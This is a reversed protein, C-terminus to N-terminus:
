RDNFSPTHSRDMGSVLYIFWDRVREASVRIDHFEHVLKISITVPEIEAIRHAWRVFDNTVTDRWKRESFILTPIEGQLELRILYETGDEVFIFCCLIPDPPLFSHVDVITRGVLANIEACTELMMPLLGSREVRERGREVAYHDDEPILQREKLFQALSPSQDKVERQAREQHERDIADLGGSADPITLVFRSFIGM